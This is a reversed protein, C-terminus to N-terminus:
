GIITPMGWGSPMSSLVCARSVVNARAKRLTLLMASEWSHGGAESYSAWHKRQLARLVHRAAIDLQQM